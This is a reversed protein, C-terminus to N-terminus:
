DNDKRGANLWYDNWDSLGAQRQEPKFPPFSVQANIANAAEIAKEKGPNVGHQQFTLWDDDGAIVIDADPWRKRVIKSVALLNGATMASFAPQGTFHHVTAATAFGECIYPWKMKEPTHEDFEPLGVSCALGTIQGDKLFRKTGDPYIRQLNRILGTGLDYLPILLQNNIVKLGDIDSLGKKVLYPHSANDNAQAYLQRAQNAAQDQLAKKNRENKYIIQQLHKRDVTSIKKNDSTFTQYHGTRLDGVGLRGDSYKYWGSKKHPKHITPVNHYQGDLKVQEAILGYEQVHKLAQYHDM